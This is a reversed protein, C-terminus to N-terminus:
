ISVLESEESHSEPEVYSSEKGDHMFIRNRGATKAVYLTEDARALMTEPRDGQVVVTVGGSITVSLKDAICARIREAYIAAGNICTQPMVVVFEEGGYRTVIDTERASDDLLRSVEKLIHDGYLHGQEDNVQKFNDIDFMAITFSSDYRQKMAFQSNLTEDLARRNALGTLSDTRVDTFTMLHSSQQRIEDYASSIQSALQMTPRLMDEAERCLERWAEEHECLSLETVRQKFKGVRVQHKSLQKKILVSINELDRAVAQARRLDRRSQDVVEASKPNVRRGLTYAAVVAAALVALKLEDPLMGIFSDSSAFFAINQPSIFATPMYFM